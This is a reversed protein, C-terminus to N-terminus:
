DTLELRGLHTSDFLWSERDDFQAFGLKRGDNVIRFNLGVNAGVIPPLMIDRLPISVEMVYGGDIEQVASRVAAASFVGASNAYKRGTISVLIATQTAPYKADYLAGGVTWPATNATNLVLEVGDYRWVWNFDGGVEEEKCLDADRAVVLLYLNENDWQFAFEGGDNGSGKIAHRAAERWGEATGDINIAVPTRKATVTDGPLSVPTGNDTVQSAVDLLRQARESYGLAGYRRAASVLALAEAKGSSSLQRRDIKAVTQKAIAESWSVLPREPEVEAQPDRRPRNAVLSRGLSLVMAEGAELRIPITTRDGAAHTPVPWDGTVSVELARSYRGSVQLTDSVSGRVCRNFVGLYLNGQSDERPVVLLGDDKSKRVLPVVRREVERMALRRLGNKGIPGTSVILKGYGLTAELVVPTGDRLRLVVEAGPAAQPMEMKWTWGGFNTTNADGMSRLYQLSDDSLRTDGPREHSEYTVAVEGVTERLITNLPRGYEDYVGVPGSSILVGGDRVWDLLKQAAMPQLWMAWPAFIVKFSRLDERGDVIADEHVYLYGFDSNYLWAHIPYTEHEVENYPWSNIFSTSSYLIGVEPHVIETGQVVDNYLDSKTRVVPLVTSANSLPSLYDGDYLEPGGYSFVRAMCLSDFWFMFQRVGYWVESLLHQEGAARLEDLTACGQYYDGYTLTEGDLLPTNSYRSLSYGWVRQVDGAAGSHAASMDAADFLGLQDMGHHLLYDFRGWGELWLRARSDGKRLAAATDKWWQAFSQRRFREFSYTLGTAQKRLAVDPPPPPEVDDFAKYDSGWTHNLEGINAYKEKLWAAFARRAPPSYGSACAPEGFYYWPIVHPNQATARALATVSDLFYHRMDPNWIDMYQARPKDHYDVDNLRDRSKEQLWRPYDMTTLHVGHHGVGIAVDFGKSRERHINALLHNLSAEETNGDSDLSLSGLLYGKTGIGYYPLLRGLANHPDFYDWPSNAFVTFLVRNLPSPRDRATAKLLHSDGPHVGLKRALAGNATQLRERVNQSNRLLSAITSRSRELVKQYAPDDERVLAIKGEYFFADMSRMADKALAALQAHADARVTVESKRGVEEWHLHRQLERHALDAEAWATFAQAQQVLLDSFDRRWVDLISEKALYQPYSVMGSSRRASRADLPSAPLRYVEIRQLLLFKAPTIAVDGGEVEGPLKVGHAAVTKRVIRPRYFEDQSFPNGSVTFQAEGIPRKADTATWKLTSRSSGNNTPCYDYVTIIFALNEESGLRAAKEDVDLALSPPKVTPKEKLDAMGPFGPNPMNTSWELPVSIGGTSLKISSHGDVTVLPPADGVVKLNRTEGTRFDISALPEQDGLVVPVFCATFATSLLLLLRSVM